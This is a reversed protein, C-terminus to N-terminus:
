PRHLDRAEKDKRRVEFDESLRTPWYKCESRAMDFFTIGRESNAAAWMAIGSSASILMMLVLTLAESLIRLNRTARTGDTRFNLLHNM